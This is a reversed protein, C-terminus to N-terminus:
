QYKFQAQIKQMKTSGKLGNLREKNNIMHLYPDLFNIFVYKSASPLMGINKTNNSALKGMLEMKGKLFRNETANLGDVVNNGHVPVNITSDMIIGYSYSLVTM